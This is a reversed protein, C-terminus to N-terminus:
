GSCTQGGKTPMFILEPKESEEYWHWGICKGEPEELYPMLWSAFMQIEGNYNKLDSRSFICNEAYRSASWPIHYYSGCSGILKWRHLSFFPHDPLTEPKSESNFLYHLAEKVDQPLDRKVNCKLLLETYMGM